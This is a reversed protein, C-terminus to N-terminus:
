HARHHSWADARTPIYAEAAQPDAQALAAWADSEARLLEKGAECTGSPCDPCTDLHAAVAADAARYEDHPNTTM